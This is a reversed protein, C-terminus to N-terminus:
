ARINSYADLFIDKLEREWCIRNKLMDNEYIEIEIPDLKEHRCVDIVFMVGKKNLYYRKDGINCLTLTVTCDQRNFIRNLARAVPCNWINTGAWDIDQQIIQIIM